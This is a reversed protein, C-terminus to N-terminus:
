LQSIIIDIRGIIGSCQDVGATDNLLCIVAATGTRCPTKIEEVTGSKLTGVSGIEPCAVTNEPASFPSDRLATKLHKYFVQGGSPHHPGAVGPVSQDNVSVVATSILEVDIVAPAIGCCCPPVGSSFHIRDPIVIKDVIQHGFPFLIEKHGVATDVAGSSQCPSKFQCFAGFSGVGHSHIFAKGTLFKGSIHVETELLFGCDPVEIHLEHGKRGARVTISEYRFVIGHPDECIKGASQDSNPAVVAVGETEATGVTQLKGGILSHDVCSVVPDVAIGSGPCFGNKSRQTGALFFIGINGSKDNVSGLATVTNGCTGTIVKDNQVVIGDNGPFDRQLTPIVSKRNGAAGM